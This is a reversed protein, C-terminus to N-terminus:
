PTTRVRQRKRPPRFLLIPREEDEPRLRAEPILRQLRRRIESDLGLSALEGLGEIERAAVEQARRAPRLRHIKQHQTSSFDEEGLQLEEFLKEGPRMGTIFIDIDEYPRLGSLQIMDKALDLIRVPEGMDLMLIDGGQGLAGAQLVLQSAEPITMFYRIMDEHTVTVPGGREIQDRFIPIVSGASGLVNGFRVAVFRTQFRRDLEQVALEAMRKTAGMVSSPNVAKDTSILVFSEVEFEGALEGLRLTACVNNKIAESPNAELMPVHKHAAAHFIVDPGHQALVSRMGSEDRVDVLLPVTEISPAVERLKRQVEFLAPESREVLLLTSPEHRLIQLAIESGISGGAGTVLVRKEGLFGRLGSEDVAIPERGLLDEIQVERLRVISVHGDVLEHLSPVIRFPVGAKECIGVIRRIERRSAETVALVIQDIGLEKALRPLERVPGHVTSGEVVCRHKQPDDDVFGLVDIGLDSHFRAERAFRAGERGAGVVLVQRRPGTSQRVPAEYREHLVRRLVRIGLVGGFSLATDIFTVSLPVRWEQFADGLGFRLALLPITAAAAARAFAALEGMGVYRWIFSYIGVFYLAAFQVLVVVPLQVAAHRAENAPVAFDFRLLYALVFSGALIGVDLLFQAQRTLHRTWFPHPAIDTDNDPTLLPM